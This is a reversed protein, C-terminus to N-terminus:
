ADPAWQIQGSRGSDRDSHGAVILVFRQHASLVLHHKGTSRVGAAVFDLLVEFDALITGPGSKDIHQTALNGSPLPVPKPNPM